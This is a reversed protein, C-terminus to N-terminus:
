KKKKEPKEEEKKKQVKPNEWTEQFTVESAHLYKFAEATFSAKRVLLNRDHFAKKPLTITLSKGEAKHQFGEISEFNHEILFDVKDDESQAKAVVEVDFVLTKGSLDSNFDVRVRGGSVTQVRGRMNDIEVPLGPMPNIKQQKFFKIPVLKVLSSDKQGYGKEPEVTVTKKDGVKMGALAEDLGEIVQKEGVAVSLPKYVRRSDHINEKKATEPLTTDFVKGDKIRGTYNIKIFDM